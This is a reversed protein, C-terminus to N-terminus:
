DRTWVFSIKKYKCNYGGLIRRTNESDFTCRIYIYTFNSFKIKIKDIFKNIKIKSGNDIVIIEYSFKNLSQKYVSKICEKFFIFNNKKIHTPIIISIFM